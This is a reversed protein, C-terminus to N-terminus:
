VRLQFAATQDFVLLPIMRRPINDAGGGRFLHIFYFETFAIMRSSLFPNGSNQLYGQVSPLTAGRGTGQNKFGHKITALNRGSSPPRESRVPCIKPM